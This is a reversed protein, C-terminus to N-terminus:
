RVVIATSLVRTNPLIPPVNEMNRSEQYDSAQLRLRHKGPKVGTTRIRLTGAVLTTTCPRGDITARITTADIGSGLDTARVVLPVNRRVRAQTLKLSPPQTDDVWLRFSFGGAGAATASDFVIDYTGALPRIAAAALVPNGFQELYPNLNTPLAAYGTLRNEDADEVIRPEVKVGPDRRTIVVGFNAVPRALAFRFVQEPGQLVATVIGGQPVDPYRYRSVLSPKGRTNGARVGPTKLPTAAAAALAPRGVRLWFPIRRIDSGHTLLVFGTLDGDTAAATVTATLDLGGPVTVTPVVVITAGTATGAPEVAVDWVGGGGGADALNVHVPVSAGPRVIGFSVSAPSAFVLPVDARLPNALGGGARIPTAAQGGDKVSSGTEILAAKLDAVTWTPHREILLAAAGAIQPTAMSTGSMADWHNGPVSSLISVGPASIDPKLRLSLPTPGASSFDALSSGGSTDPSTVAAVTIARDSTGPSILSGGGFEEFDNGAAVVPVVGAAAAADLARAVIDRSPEIEPEGLSLNIVDMGDSVAAEIAAVIEPANGDLGVNADTPVSLAKYNGIYARPAIGSVKVGGTAATGANGAAIGAVHTAHGSQVPDFPKRAYKWTIGAPAFARAVIVKATTYAAQGKPFGAPMTYGAPAFYPHTQDVGDDIIGIKIGAGQNALGTSWTAAAKAVEEATVKSVTYTAGADVERVGPLTRLRGVAANPVVVAAGNLVLRYRWRIRADPIADHLASAFREQERDIATRATRGSAGTRGAVPPSALTVIVESSPESAPAAAV